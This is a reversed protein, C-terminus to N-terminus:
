HRNVGYTKRQFKRRTESNTFKSWWDMDHRDHKRITGPEKFRLYKVLLGNMIKDLGIDAVIDKIVSITDDRRRLRLEVRTWKHETGELSQKDYITIRNNSKGYVVSEAISKYYTPPHIILKGQKRTDSCLSSVIRDKYNEKDSLEKIVDLPLLGDTDDKAIDLLTVNGNEQLIYKCIKKFDLDELTDFASGHIQFLTTGTANAQGHRYICFKGNKASSGYLYFAIMKLPYTFESYPIGLLYLCIENLEDDSFDRKLTFNIGHIKTQGDFM